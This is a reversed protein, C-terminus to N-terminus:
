FPQGLNVSFQLYLTKLILPTLTIVVKLLCNLKNFCSRINLYMLITLYKFVLM